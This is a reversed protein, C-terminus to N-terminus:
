KSPIKEALTLLEILKGRDAESMDLEALKQRLVNIDLIRSHVSSAIDNTMRNLADFSDMTLGLASLQNQMAVAIDKVNESNLEHRRLQYMSVSGGQYMDYALSMSSLKCKLREKEPWSDPLSDMVIDELNHLKEQLMDRVLVIGERLNIKSKMESLESKTDSLEGRLKDVKASLEMCGACGFDTMSNFTVTVRTIESASQASNPDIEAIFSTELQDFAESFKRKAAKAVSGATMTASVEIQDSKTIVVDQRFDIPISKMTNWPNRPDRSATSM